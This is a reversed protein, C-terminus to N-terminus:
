IYYFSCIGCLGKTELNTERTLGTIEQRRISKARLLRVSLETQKFSVQIDTVDGHVQSVQMPLTQMM